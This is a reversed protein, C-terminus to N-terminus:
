RTGEIWTSGFPAAVTHLVPGLTSSSVYVLFLADTADAATLVHDSRGGNLAAISVDGALHARDVYTFLQADIAVDSFITSPVGDSLVVDLRDRASYNAFVVQTDSEHGPEFWGPESMARVQIAPAGATVVLLHRRQGALSALSVVPATPECADIDSLGFSFAGDFTPSYGVPPVLQGPEVTFTGGSRDAGRGPCIHILLDTANLVGVLADPRVPEPDDDLVMMAPGLPDGPHRNLDGYLLVSASRGITSFFGAVTAEALSDGPAEHLAAGLAWAGEGAPIANQVSGAEGLPIVEPPISGDYGVYQVPAIPHRSSMVNLYRFTPTDGNPALDDGFGYIADGSGTVDPGLVILMSPEVPFSRFLEGAPSSVVVELTGDSPAPVTVSHSVHGYELSIGFPVGGVELEVLDLGPSAHVVRVKVPSAEGCSDTVEDCPDEGCPPESRQCLRGVPDFTEVGNCFLGDDCQIGADDGGDGAPVGANGLASRCVGASCSQGPPCDADTRCGFWADPITARCGSSLALALAAFMTSVLKSSRM